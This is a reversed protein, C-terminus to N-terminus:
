FVGFLQEHSSACCLSFLILYTIMYYSLGIIAPSEFVERVEIGALTKSDDRGVDWNDVL